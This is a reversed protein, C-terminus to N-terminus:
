QISGHGKEVSITFVQRAKNVIWCLTGQYDYINRFVGWVTDNAIKHASTDTKGKAKELAYVANYIERLQPDTVTHNIAAM